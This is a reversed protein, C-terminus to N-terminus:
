KHFKGKILDLHGAYDSWVNVTVDDSYDIVNYENPNCLYVKDNDVCDPNAECYESYDSFKSIVFADVDEDTGFMWYPWKRPINKDRLYTVVAACMADIYNKSKHTRKYKKLNSILNETFYPSHKYIDLIIDMANPDSPFPIGEIIDKAHIHPFLCKARKRVRLIGYYIYELIHANVNQPYKLNIHNCRNCFHLLEAESCLVVCEDNHQEIIETLHDEMINGILMKDMQDYSVFEGFVVDGNASIKLECPIDTGIVKIRHKQCFPVDVNKGIAYEESNDVFEVARGSYCLSMPDDKSKEIEDLVYHVDIMSHWAPSIRSNAESVLPQYFALAQEYETPDHFIDNSIRIIAVKNNGSACFKEFSDVLRSDCITGNTTVEILSTTWQSDVLKEIFYSIRDIELLAEGSGFSIHRVDQVEDFIRNIIITNMSMDQADGYACHRCKKNCRRTIEIALKNFRYKKM